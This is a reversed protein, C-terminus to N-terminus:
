VHARGIEKISRGLRDLRWVVLVDGERAFKLADELGPRQAKMGSVKDHFIKECDAKKLADIQLDLNQDQTSIRAYGINM